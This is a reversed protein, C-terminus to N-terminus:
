YATKKKLFFPLYKLTPAKSLLPNLTHKKKTKSGMNKSLTRDRDETNVAAM